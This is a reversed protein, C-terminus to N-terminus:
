PHYVRLLGISRVPLSRRSRPQLFGQFRSVQEFIEVTPMPAPYDVPLPVNKLAKIGMKLRYDGNDAEVEYGTAYTRATVPDFAFDTYNLKIQRESFKITKEASVKVGLITNRRESQVDGLTVSFGDEPRSAQAWNWQPDNFAWRGWNHDHYGRGSIDITRNGLTLTVPSM